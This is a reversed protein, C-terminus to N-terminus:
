RSESSWRANQIEMLHNFKSLWDKIVLDRQKQYEANAHDCKPLEPLFKVVLDFDKPIKDFDDFTLLVGNKEVVFEHPM